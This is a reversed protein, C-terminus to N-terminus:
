GIGTGSIAGGGMDFELGKDKSLGLMVSQAIKKDLFCM